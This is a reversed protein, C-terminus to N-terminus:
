LKVKIFNEIIHKTFLTGIFNGCPGTNGNIDTDYQCLGSHIGVSVPYNTGTNTLLIPSGTHGSSTIVDHIGTKYKDNSGKWM